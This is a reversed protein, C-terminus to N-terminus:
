IGVKSKEMERLEMLKVSAIRVKDQFVELSRDEIRGFNEPDKNWFYFTMYCNWKPFFRTSSDDLVEMVLDQHEKTGYFSMIM